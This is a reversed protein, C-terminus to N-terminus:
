RVVKTDRKIRAIKALVKSPNRADHNTLRYIHLGLRRMVASRNADKRRQDPTFHYGGDIELVLRYDPLYLDAFFTSRGTSIPFQKIVRINARELIEAAKKEAGTTNALLEKRNSSKLLFAKKEKKPNKRKKREKEKIM